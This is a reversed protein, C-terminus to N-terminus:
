YASYESEDLYRWTTDKPRAWGPVGDLRAILTIGAAQAADAVNDAHNWDFHGADNPQIYAWPFFETAWSAGMERLMAFERKINDDSPEDTLRTHLGIKPNISTFSLPTPTPLEVVTPAPSNVMYLTAVTVAAALLVIIAPVVLRARRKKM